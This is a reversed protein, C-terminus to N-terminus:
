PAAVRKAAVSGMNVLIANALARRGNNRAQRTAAGQLMARAVDPRTELLMRAMRDLVSPPMGRAENAIRSVADIAAQIPRGRLLNTLVSPDFKSMEAADALNDATKSGGLATNATEFMRQERAIRRGMREGQGPAAFAPFEAGTKGTMLPRAKNTTASVSSNDVRAIIPDAYGARFAGQEDPTMANFQGINDEARTRGSTAARGTDVADIVHSQQRFTDNAARYAGSSGELAEDLASYVSRMDQAVQPNRQMQQFMDSKINLVRDFDILQEGGRQLQDRLARLRVGLPGTSLATEGLIPDRRLLRNIEGIANNLNVAGAGQRAATYNTNATATRQSALAAARQAATDPADFGQALYRALRDGQGLQRDTLTDVVTQRMNNPNRAATSLMRQGSHGMADAVTFAGQDDAQSRALMNAIDDTTMGSRRVGESMAREAYPAPRLRSMIPSVIPRAAAQAGAVLYPAAGGLVAGTVAGMGAGKARSAADTGGGAGQLGGFILGDVASGAAARGLGAGSRVANAGFGAGGTALGQAVGGGVQGALYSGPNQDQAAGANGRMQALIQSRSMGSRGPLSELGAAVTSALEDGFGFTATDAAGMAASGAKGYQPEVMGTEPNYGEVGPPVYEPVNSHGQPGSQPQVKLASLAAREDPADVEFTGDPTEIEFIPM